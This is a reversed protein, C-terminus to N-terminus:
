RYLLDFSQFSQDFDGGAALLGEVRTREDSLLETVRVRLEASAPRGLAMLHNLSDHRCAEVIEKALGDLLSSDATAFLDLVCDGIAVGIHAARGSSGTRRFVGLPLNEIPFDTERAEASEVWCVTM